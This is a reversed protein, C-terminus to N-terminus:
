IYDKRLLEFADRENERWFPDPMTGDRLYDAYVSGPVLAEHWAESTAERMKWAGNLSIKLM